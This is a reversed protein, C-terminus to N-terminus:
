SDGDKRVGEVMQLLKCLDYFDTPDLGTISKIKEIHYMVTNRHLFLERGVRSPKMQNDALALIIDVDRESM